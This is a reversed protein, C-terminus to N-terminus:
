RGTKSFHQYDHMTSWEGGWKWGIRRFANIVVSGEGIVGAVSVNRKQFAAGPSPSVHRGSVFPNQIPNIDIALGRAHESLVRTGSVVRCNFASTNNATMSARDDGGYKDIRDIQAIPFTGAAYIEDFASLVPQAETRAVIMEGFRTRGAFDIFPVHLLSLSERDPCGHRAHWSKGQMDHWVIDPVSEVYGGPKCAAATSPSFMAGNQLAQAVSAGAEPADSLRAAADLAAISEQATGTGLLLNACALAHGAERFAEANELKPANRDQAHELSQLRRRYDEVLRLVRPADTKWAPDCQLERSQRQWTSRWGALRDGEMGYSCVALPESPMKADAEAGAGLGAVDEARTTATALLAALPILFIWGSLARHESPIARELRLLRRVL